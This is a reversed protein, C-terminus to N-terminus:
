PRSPLTGAWHNAKVTGSIPSHLRDRRHRQPREAPISCVSRSHGGPRVRGPFGLEATVVSGARSLRTARSATRAAAARAASPINNPDTPMTCPTTRQTTSSGGAGVKVTRARHLRAKVTGEATATFAAIDRVPLDALYHLIVAQRYLPPLKALARTLDLCGTPATSM